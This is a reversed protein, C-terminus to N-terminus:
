RNLFFFVTALIALCCALIAWISLRAQSSASRVAENDAIEKNRLKNEYEAERL